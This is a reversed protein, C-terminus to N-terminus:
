GICDGAGAGNGTGREARQGDPVVGQIADQDLQGQGDGGRGGADGAAGRQDPQARRGTGIAAAVTIYIVVVFIDALPCSPVWAPQFCVKEVAVQFHLENLPQSTANSFFAVVHILRPQQPHRRAMFEIRLSTNLVQVRNVSPLASAEPLSSAFNWEDDEKAASNTPGTASAAALDLLSSGAPAPQPPKPSQSPFPSAHRPSASVLSAFPDVTAPPPPTATNQPQSQSLAAGPRPSSSQPIPQSSNLSSLIDYNPQFGAPAQQVPPSASAAPPNAQIITLSLCSM